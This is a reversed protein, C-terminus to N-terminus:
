SVATLITWLFIAWYIFFFLLPMFLSFHRPKISGIFGDMRTLGSTPYSLNEAGDPSELRRVSPDFFIAEDSYFYEGACNMKRELFRAQFYHLKLKLQLRIASVTWYTSIAMGVVLCFFISLLDIPSFIHQRNTLFSIFSITFLVIGTNLALYVVESRAVRNEISNIVTILGLYKSSSVPHKDETTTGM